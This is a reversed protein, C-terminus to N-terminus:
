VLSGSVRNPTAILISFLHPQRVSGQPLQVSKATFCPKFGCGRGVDYEGILLCCRISVGVDVYVGGFVDILYSSFLFFLRIQRDESLLIMRQIRLVSQRPHAITYFFSAWPQTVLSQGPIGRMPFEAPM